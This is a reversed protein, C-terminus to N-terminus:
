SLLSVKNGDVKFTSPFLTDINEQNLTLHSLYPCKIIKSIKGGNAMYPHVEPSQNLPCILLFHELKKAIIRIIHGLMLIRLFIKYMCNNCGRSFPELELNWQIHISLFKINSSINIKTM